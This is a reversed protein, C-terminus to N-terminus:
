RGNISQTAHNLPSALIPTPYMVVGHYYPLGNSVNITTGPGM